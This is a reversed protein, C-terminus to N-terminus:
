AYPIGRYYNIGATANQYGAYKVQDGKDPQPLTGDYSLFVFM